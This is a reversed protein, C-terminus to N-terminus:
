DGIPCTPAPGGFANNWHAQVIFCPREKDAPAPAGSAAGSAPAAIVASAAFAACAAVAAARRHTSM